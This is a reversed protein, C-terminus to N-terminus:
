FKGWVLPLTGEALERNENATARYADELLRELEAKAPAEDPQEIEENLM